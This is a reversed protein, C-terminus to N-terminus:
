RLTEYLTRSGEAFKRLGPEDNSSINPGDVLANVCGKAVIHPPGYRQQLAKLARSLGGPVGEFGAVASRPQGELRQLLRSIKQSKSINQTGVMEDFRARFRFYECPNGFFKVKDLPPLNSKTAISDISTTLKTVMTETTNALSSLGDPQGDQNSPLAAKVFTPVAPNLSPEKVHFKPVAAEDPTSSFLPSGGPSLVEAMPAWLVSREDNLTPKYDRVELVKTPDGLEESNLYETEVSSSFISKGM